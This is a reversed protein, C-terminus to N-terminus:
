RPARRHPSESLRLLLVGHSTHGSGARCDLDELALADAVREADRTRRDVREVGRELCGTADVVGEGAMDLAGRVHGLAVGTGTGAVDTDADAGRARYAGVHDGAEVGRVAVRDRDQADRALGRGGHDVLLVELGDVDRRDRGGHRLHGDRDQLRGLDGADELLGEVEHAGAARARDQDVQRDVHLEGLDLEVRLRVLRQRHVLRRRRPRLDLLRDTEEVGGFAGQEDRAATDDVRVRGFEEDFEGLQGARRDDRGQHAPADQGVVVLQVAPM